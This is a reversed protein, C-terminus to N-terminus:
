TGFDFATRCSATQPPSSAGGHPPGQAASIGLPGGEQPLREPLSFLGPAARVSRFSRDPVHQAARHGLRALVAGPAPNSGGPQDRELVAEVSQTASSQVAGIQRAIDETAKATQVSLAKVESAVVTFGRGAVGARAAEITANLALLNTQRAINQIFRVVADISQVVEALRAIERNTDEAEGVASAVLEATSELQRSIDNISSSLEGVASVVHGASSSAEQSNHLASEVSHTTEGSSTLLAAATSKMTGADSVVANLVEDVRARFEAIASEISVRRSEREARVVRQEEDIRRETIDEHVAVWGGGAIPHRSIALTLLVAAAITRGRGDQRAALTLAAMGFGMGLLISTTVLGLAWSVHGPVELAWMGLYHMCAVGAGLVAGGIAAMPRGEFNAALSLGASTILIAALLSVATMPVNYAVAVGPEYALM